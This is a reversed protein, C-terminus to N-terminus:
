NALLMIDPNEPNIWLTHYDDGGPAGKVGDMDKAM